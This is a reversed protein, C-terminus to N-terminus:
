PFLSITRSVEEQIGDICDYNMVEAADVWASDTFAGEELVIEGGAYDAGFQLM